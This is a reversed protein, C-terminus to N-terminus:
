AKLAIVRMVTDVEGPNTIERSEGTVCVFLDSAKVAFEKDKKVRVEGELIHYITDHRPKEAPFGSGPAIIYDTIAISRYTPLSAPWRGIDVRRVGRM